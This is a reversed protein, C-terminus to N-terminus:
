PSRKRRKQVPMKADPWPDSISGEAFRALTTLHDSIRDLRDSMGQAEAELAAFCEREEKLTAMLEDAMTM